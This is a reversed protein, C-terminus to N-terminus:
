PPKDPRDPDQTDLFPPSLIVPSEKNGGQEFTGPEERQGHDKTDISEMESFNDLLKAACRTNCELPLLWDLCYRFRGVKRTGNRCKDM